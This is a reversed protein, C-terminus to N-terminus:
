AEDGDEPEGVDWEDDPDPVDIMAECHPCNQITGQEKAPFTSAEGCEECTAEVTGTRAQRAAQKATQDDALLQRVRDATGPQDVWVEWGRAGVGTLANLGDLGGLTNEEIVRAAIDQGALWGIAAEAEALTDAVLVCRPDRYM